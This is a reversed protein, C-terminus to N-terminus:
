DLAELFVSTQESRGAAGRIQRVFKGIPTEPGARPSSGPLAPDVLPFPDLFGFVLPCETPSSTSV